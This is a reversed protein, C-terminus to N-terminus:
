ERKITYIDPHKIQRKTDNIAIRSAITRLADTIKFIDPM